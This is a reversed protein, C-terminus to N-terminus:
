DHHSAQKLFIIGKQENDSRRQRFASPFMLDHGFSDRLGTIQGYHPYLEIRYQFWMPLQRKAFNSATRQSAPDWTWVKHENLFNLDKQLKGCVFYKFEVEFYGDIDNPHPKREVFSGNVFVREVGVTWLEVTLTELNDVLHSRWAADWNPEDCGEGTVLFSKRLENFTLAYDGPPLLGNETFEPIAM